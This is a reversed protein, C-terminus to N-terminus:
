QTTGLEIASLCTPLHPMPAHTHTQESQHSATRTVSDANMHTLFCPRAFRQANCSVGSVLDSGGRTHHLHNSEALSRCPSAKSPDCCSRTRLHCHCVLCRLRKPFRADVSNRRGLCGTEVPTATHPEIGWSRRRVTQFSQMIKSQM